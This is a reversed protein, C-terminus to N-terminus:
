VMDEPIVGITQGLEESAKMDYPLMFGKRKEPARRANKLALQLWARAATKTDFFEAGAGKPLWHGMVRQRLYGVEAQNNLFVGAETDWRLSRGNLNASSVIATRDDFISVKAHIYVLPAGKLRDRGLKTKSPGHNRPQAAGAIFLRHGFARQVIRLARAQLYEGYRLDLSNDGDFAVEEPAAPLVLIMTLDPKQRAARALTRALGTDRFYQSELYILDDAGRALTEHASLIETLVPQPGFYALPYPRKRSLTRLFRRAAPPESQDAVSDLFGELHEQAEAVVPGKLLLQLDHWTESGPRNHSPTDFRRDNLDLGGIYLTERDFVALKQHHTAPYLLPVGGLRPRLKGGTTRCLLPMVGPMDRLAASTVEPTAHNLWKATGMLHKLIMPWFVVRPLIGTQASHMAPIVRLDAKPGALEAAALFRRVTKWTVQHMRARATPDFDTIVMRIAVGRKLTHEVLDFWTKGIKRAAKSHLRTDLDFVRFSAWIETRAELFEVELAPFAESATLLVRMAPTECLKFELNGDM